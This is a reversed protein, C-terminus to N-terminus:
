ATYVKGDCYLDLRRRGEFAALNPLIGTREPVRTTMLRQPCMGSYIMASEM